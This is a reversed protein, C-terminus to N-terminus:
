LIIWKNYYLVSSSLSLKCLCGQSSSVEILEKETAAKILKETKMMSLNWRKYCSEKLRKASAQLYM